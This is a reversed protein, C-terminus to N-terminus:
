LIPIMIPDYRAMQASGFCCRWFASSALRARCLVSLPKRATHCHTGIGVDAMVLPIPKVLVMRAIERIDQKKLQSM